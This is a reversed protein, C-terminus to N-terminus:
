PYTKKQGIRYVFVIVLEYCYEFIEVNTLNLLHFEMFECQLQMTIANYDFDYLDSYM